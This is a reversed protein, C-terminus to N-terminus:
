FYGPSGAYLTFSPVVTEPPLVTNDAVASCDKLVCRRGQLLTRELLSVADHM